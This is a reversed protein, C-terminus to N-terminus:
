QWWHRPEQVIDSYGGPTERETAIREELEDEDTVQPHSKGDIGLDKRAARVGASISHYMRGEGLTEIFGSRSLVQRAQYFVRM